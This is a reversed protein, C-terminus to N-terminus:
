AAGTHGRCSWNWSGGPQAPLRLYTFGHFWPGEYILRRQENRHWNKSLQVPIGTPYGDRDRLIASMGTVPLDQTKDFLLRAPQEEDSGNELQLRVREVRNNEDGQKAIGNLDIRIWGRESDFSAPVTAGTQADRAVVSVASMAASSPVPSTEGAAPGFDISVAVRGPNDSTWLTDAAVQVCQEYTREATKLRLALEAGHWDAIERHDRAPGASNFSWSRVLADSLNAEPQAHLQAIEADTLARGYSQVEDVVGRFHYGDGANDGRRGVTLTGAVPQRPKGVTQSGAAQGDVCFRLQSGDYAVALHHWRETELVRQRGDACTAAVTTCNERGGGIDLVARPIGQRGVCIGVHGDAWENGQYCLIWSDYQTAFFDTPVYVWCALTFAAPLEDATVQCDMHNAGDLGFGGAVRGFTEGAAIPLPRPYAELLLTLRDPWALTEFRAHVPLERGDSSAFVLNTVDARQVFRGSEIIRPGDHDTAAGGRGRYTVDDVKIELDLQAGPLDSWATNDQRVAAAYALPDVLRGLHPIAMREVDLAMAYRSTQVVRRWQGEPGRRQFGDAWWMLAYDPAALPPDAARVPCPCALVLVLLLAQQIPVASWKRLRQSSM